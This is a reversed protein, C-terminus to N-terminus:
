NASRRQTRALENEVAPRPDVHGAADAVERRDLIGVLHDVFEARSVRNHPDIYLLYADIAERVAAELVKLREPDCPEQDDNSALARSLAANDPV